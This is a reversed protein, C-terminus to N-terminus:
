KNGHDEKKKIAEEIKMLAQIAAIEMLLYEQELQKMKTGIAQETKNM